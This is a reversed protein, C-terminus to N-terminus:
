PKTKRLYIKGYTSSLKLEPGGTNLKGYILTGYSAVSDETTKEIAIKFDPSTMITSMASKFKINAKTNVPIAVDVASYISTMSIPGKIPEVFIATITGYLSRISVPGTINQLLINDYNTEAEIENEFNKFTLKALGDVKHSVISVIPGKPVMVKILLDPLVGNVELVTGKEVVSLGIGTNDRYGMGNVAQLGEEKPDNDVKKAKLSFIIQNGNYGEVEVNTLNIIIKSPLKSIKFEQARIEMVSFFCLVVFLTLPYKM